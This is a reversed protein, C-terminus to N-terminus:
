ELWPAHQASASRHHHTGRLRHTPSTLGRAERSEGGTLSYTVVLFQRCRPLLKDNLVKVKKELQQEPCVM